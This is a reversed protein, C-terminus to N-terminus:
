KFLIINPNEHVENIKEELLSAFNTIEWDEDPMPYGIDPEHPNVYEIYFIEKEDKLIKLWSTKYDSAAFYDISIDKTIEEIQSNIYIYNKGSYYFIALLQDGLQDYSGCYGLLEDEYEDSFIYKNNEINLQRYKELEWHRYLIM